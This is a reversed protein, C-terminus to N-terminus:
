VSPNVIGEVVASSEDVSNDVTKTFLTRRRSQVKRGCGPTKRQVTGSGNTETIVGGGGIPDLPHFEVKREVGLDSEHTCAEPEFTAGIVGVGREGETEVPTIELKELDTEVSTRELRSSVNEKVSLREHEGPRAPGREDLREHAEVRRPVLTEGTEVERAPDEAGLAFGFPEPADGVSEVSGVYARGEANTELGVALTERYEQRVAVEDLLPTEGRPSV